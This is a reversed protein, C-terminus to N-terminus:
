VALFADLDAVPDRPTIGLRDLTPLDGRVVKDTRMLRVQDRCFRPTPALEALAGAAMALGQPLPPLWCHAGAARRVAKVLAHMSLTTPGGAEYTRGNTDDRRMAATLAAVLDDRHLPQIRTGPGLVPLLPYRRMADALPTAFHDGAGLTLGARVVTADPFVAAVAREGEAKTRDAHSPADRRVGLASVYVFRTVGETAAQEACARPANVHLERFPSESRGTVCGPLYVVANADALARRVARADRVDAALAGVGEPLDTATHANRAVVRVAVGEAALRAALARGVFGTGGLLTVRQLSM